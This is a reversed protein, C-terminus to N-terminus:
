KLTDLFGLYETQYLKSNLIAAEGLEFRGYLVRSAYEYSCQADQSIAEEGEPFRGRIIFRAYKLSVHGNMSIAKEGEPFRRNLVHNAYDCSIWSYRSIAEEGEPFRKGTLRALELSTEANKAIAPIAKKFQKMVHWYMYSVSTHPCKSIADEGKIFRSGILKSYELSLITSHSIGAEAEKFRFIDPDSDDSFKNRIATYLTSHYPSRSIYKELTKYSYNGIYREIRFLKGDSNRGYQINIKDVSLALSIIPFTKVLDEDSYLIRRALEFFERELTVISEDSDFDEEGFVKKKSNIFEIEQNLKHDLKLGAKQMRSEFNNKDYEAELWAIYGEPTYGGSPNSELFKELPKNNSKVIKKKKQM